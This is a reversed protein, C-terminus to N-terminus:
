PRSSRAAMSVNPTPIVCGEQVRLPGSSQVYGTRAAAIEPMALLREFLIREDTDARRVAEVDLGYALALAGDFANARIAVDEGSVSTLSLSVGLAASGLRPDPRAPDAAIVIASYAVRTAGAASSLMVRGMFPLGFQPAVPGLVDRPAEELATTLLAREDSSLATSARIAAGIDRQSIGNALAARVLSTAEITDVGQV